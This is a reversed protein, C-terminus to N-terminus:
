FRLEPFLWLRCSARQGVFFFRPVLRRARLPTFFFLEGNLADGSPLFPPSTVAGDKFLFLRAILPSPCRTRCLLWTLWPDQPPPSIVPSTIRFTTHPTLRRSMRPRPPFSSLLIEGALCFRLPQTPVHYVTFAVPFRNELFCVKSSTRWVVSASTL